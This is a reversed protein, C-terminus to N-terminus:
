PIKRGIYPNGNEDLYEIFDFLSGARIITNHDVNVGFKLVKPKITAKALFDVVNEAHAHVEVRDWPESLLILAEYLDHVYTTEATSFELEELKDTIILKMM